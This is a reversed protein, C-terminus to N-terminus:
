TLTMVSKIAELLQEKNAMSIQRGVIPLNPVTRAFQRLKVVPMAELDALSAAGPAPVSPTPRASATSSVPVASPKPRPKPPVVRKPKPLRPPKVSREAAPRIPPALTPKATAIKPAAGGPAIEGNTYKRLFRVYPRLPELGEDPRTIIHMSILQGAQEAALAGAEVAQQVAARDGEIRVTVRGSANQEASAIAVEAASTAARTAEIAGLMGKTEILGLAERPM